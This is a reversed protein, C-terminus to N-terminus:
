GDAGWAEIEGFAQEDPARRTSNQQENKLRNLLIAPDYTGYKREYGPLIPRILQNRGHIEHEHSRSHSPKLRNKSRM